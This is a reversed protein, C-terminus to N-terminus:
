KTDARAASEASRRSLERAKGLHGAFAESDAALSLGFNELEPKRAFWRQEEEMGASDEAIFALGYAAVHLALSDARRARADRITQRAEDLRQLALQFNVINSLRVVSEPTTHLTAEWAREYEGQQARILGLRNYTSTDRPYSETAAQFTREAKDLERTVFLYYNATIELRERESAHERLEFARTFYEAARELQALNYYYSGVANHGMAFNPDIQIARQAYALGEVGRKANQVRGLSYEKLAELSSTTAEALPVDFKRVSAISEGLESRLKAAAEGVANLVKEKGLATVQQQSLADGSQCNVAKLGLVYETGLSAISGAIYAQSGTRECIERAVEPTLKTGAPRTMLQLTAAIKNDGLINLFPSQNLAVTLATKLTDDFVGEGTSNTFDAIVITDKDTLPKSQHARYYLGGAGLAVVLLVAASVIAPWLKKQLVDETPAAPIAPAVNRAPADNQTALAPPKVVAFRAGRVDGQLGQLDARMEAASRYRLDRDKELAKRIVAELEPPVRPNVQSPSTAQTHLIAGCVEGPSAGEFPMRGTAMEYLVAGFSFLDTRADLYQARVQEPSMFEYTGLMAGEGTLSEDDPGAAVTPSEGGSAPKPLIKALGFDLVKAVGRRTVFINVPKIDRHIIGEGHAADLADAIEIAVKLVAETEMPREAIHHKLNVGDLFEMVIFIRGQDEGIDYVTCINPHNLASAARAERRFRELVTPDWRVEEPVFKLAVFRGLRTDEAKYVVGMGGAGLREVIRYHSITGPALGARPHLAEKLIGFHDELAPQNLFDPARDYAELLSLVERRVEGDSPGLGALKIDREAKPLLRCLEFFEHIRERQEPDM